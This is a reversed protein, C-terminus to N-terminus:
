VRNDLFHAFKCSTALLLSAEELAADTNPVEVAELNSAVLQDLLTQDLIFSRLRAFWPCVRIRAHDALRLSNARPPVDSSSLDLVDILLLVLSFM